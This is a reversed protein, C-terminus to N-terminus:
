LIHKVHANVLYLTVVLLNVCQLALWAKQGMKSPKKITRQREKWREEECLFVVNCEHMINSIQNVIIKTKDENNQKQGRTKLRIAQREERGSPSACALLNM